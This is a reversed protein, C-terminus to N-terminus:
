ARFFKRLGPAASAGEKLNAITQSVVRDLQDAIEAQSGAQKALWTALEPKKM